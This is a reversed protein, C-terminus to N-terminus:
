VSTDSSQVFRTLDVELIECIYELPPTPGCVDYICPGSFLLQGPHSSDESHVHTASSELTDGFVRPSKQAPGFVKEEPGGAM